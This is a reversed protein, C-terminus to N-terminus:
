TLSIAWGCIDYRRRDFSDPGSNEHIYFSNHYDKYKTDWVKGCIEYFYGSCQSFPYSLLCTPLSQQTPTFASWLYFTIQWDKRISSSSLWEILYQFHWEATKRWPRWSVKTNLIKGDWGRLPNICQTKISFSVSFISMLHNIDLALRHNKCLEWIKLKHSVSIVLHPGSPPYSYAHCDDYWPRLNTLVLALVKSVRVQSHVVMGIEPNLKLLIYAIISLIWFLSFFIVTVVCFCKETRFRRRFYKM